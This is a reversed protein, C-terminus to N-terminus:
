PKRSKVIKQTRGDLPPLWVFKPLPIEGPTSNVFEQPPQIFGQCTPLKSASRLPPRDTDASLQIFTPLWMIGINTWGGVLGPTIIETDYRITAENSTSDAYYACRPRQM